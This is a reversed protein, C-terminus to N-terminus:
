HLFKGFLKNSLNFLIKYFDNMQYNSQNKNQFIFKGMKKVYTSTLEM